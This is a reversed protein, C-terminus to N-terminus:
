QDALYEYIDFNDNLFGGDTTNEVLEIGGVLTALQYFEADGGIRYIITDGDLQQQIIRTDEQSNLVTQQSVNEFNFVKLVERSTKDMLTQENACAVVVVFFSILANASM